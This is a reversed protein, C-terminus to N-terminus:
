LSLALSFHPPSVTLMPGAYKSYLSTMEGETVSKGLVVMEAGLM